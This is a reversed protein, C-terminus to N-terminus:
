NGDDDEEVVFDSIIFDITDKISKAYGVYEIYNDGFQQEALGEKISERKEFLGKVLEKTVPM